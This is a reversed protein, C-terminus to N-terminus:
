PILIGQGLDLSIKNRIRSLTEPRVGLYSAVHQIPIENVLNPFEQLFQLYRQEADLQNFAIEKVEKRHFAQVVAKLLFKYMKPNKIQM